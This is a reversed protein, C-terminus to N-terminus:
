RGKEYRIDVCDAHGGDPYEVDEIERIAIYGCILCRSEDGGRGNYLSASLLEHDTEEGCNGCYMRHTM